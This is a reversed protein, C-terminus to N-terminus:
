AVKRSTAKRTASKSKTAKRTPKKTATQEFLQTMITRVVFRPILTKRRVIKLRIKTMIVKAAGFTCIKQVSKHTKEGVNIWDCNKYM